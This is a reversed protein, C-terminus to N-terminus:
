RLKALNDRGKPGPGPLAESSAVLRFTPSWPEFHLSPFSTSIDRCADTGFSRVLVESEEGHKQQFKLLTSQPHRMPLLTEGSYVGEKGFNSELDKM